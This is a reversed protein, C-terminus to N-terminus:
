RFEHRYRGTKLQFFDQKVYYWHWKVLWFNFHNLYYAMRKFRFLLDKWARKRM